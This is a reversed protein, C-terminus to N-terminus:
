TANKSRASLSLKHKVERKTLQAIEVRKGTVAVEPARRRSARDRLRGQGLLDLLELLFEARGQELAARPLDPRRAQPLRQGLPDAGNEGRYVFEVFERGRM